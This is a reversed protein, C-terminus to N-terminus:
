FMFRRSYISQLIGLATMTTLISNGGYTVFLLPVGSIPLLACMMGINLLVHMALYVSLGIALYRGFPDKAVVAVQLSFYILVFFLSLLIALGIFGFEEGYAAFVSDTHAAPLWKRGAFESQRWGTGTLGGVAISTTAARQHYTNPSLREYQYEKMFRTFFPRMEEHSCIGILLCLNLALISLGICSIIRMAWRHIGAFYCMSLAIPLLILATGLDPQKLILLFPIGVLIGVMLASRLTPRNEKELYVALVLAVILKAHESPQIAFGLGPIRYWRHVNQIPSTLYLGLLLAVILGYLIWSFSRLQRYDFSAVIIFVGWGLLFWRVQSKVFPTWFSESGQMTMSSVVLLSIMMLALIVPLIRWDIRGLYRLDWTM